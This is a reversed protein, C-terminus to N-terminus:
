TIINIFFSYKKRCSSVSTFFHQHDITVRPGSRKVRFYQVRGEIGLCLTLDGSLFWDKKLTRLCSIKWTKKCWLLGVSALFNNHKKIKERSNKDRINLTTIVRRHSLIYLKRLTESGTYGAYASGAIHIQAFLPEAYDPYLFKPVRNKKYFSHFRQTRLTM